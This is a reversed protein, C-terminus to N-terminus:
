RSCPSLPTRGTVIVLPFKSLSPVNGTKMRRTFSSLPLTLSRLYLSFVGITRRTSAGPSCFSVGFDTGFRRRRQDDFEEDFGQHKDFGRGSNGPDKEEPRFGVSATERSGLSVELRRRPKWPLRGSGRRWRRDQPLFAAHFHSAPSARCERGRERILAARRGCGGVLSRGCRRRRKGYAKGSVRHLAALKDCGSKRFHHRGRDEGRSCRKRNGTRGRSQQQGRVSKAWGGGNAPYVCRKQVQDWIGNAAPDM